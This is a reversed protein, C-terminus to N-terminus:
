WVKKQLLRVWPMACCPENKTKLFHNKRSSFFLQHVSNEEDKIYYISLLMQSVGRLINQSKKNENGWVKKAQIHM